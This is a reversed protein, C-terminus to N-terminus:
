THITLKLTSPVYMYIYVYMYIHVVICILGTPELTSVFIFPMYMYTHM